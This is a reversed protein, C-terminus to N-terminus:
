GEVNGAMFARISGAKITTTRKTLKLTKIQGRNILNYLTSNCIGLIQAAEKPRILVDDSLHSFNALIPNIHRQTETM